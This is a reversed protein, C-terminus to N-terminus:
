GCVFTAGFGARVELGEGAPSPLIKLHYKRKRDARWGDDHLNKM